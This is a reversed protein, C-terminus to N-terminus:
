PAPLGLRACEKSRWQEFFEELSQESRFAFGRAEAPRGGLVVDFPLVKEERLVEVKVTTGPPHSQIYQIFTVTTPDPPIPKGDCSIIADGTQVGAKAAGTNPLVESALIAHVEKGNRLLTEKMLRIGLFGKPADYIKKDVVALLVEELRHQIEVDENTSAARLCAELVPTHAKDAQALLAKQANERDRFSPAGLDRIAALTEPAPAAAPVPDAARGCLTASLLLLLVPRMM